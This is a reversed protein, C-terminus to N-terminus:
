KRSISKPSKKLKRYLTALSVGLAEAAKRTDGDFRDLVTRIHFREMEDLDLITDPKDMLTQPGELGVFHKPSLPGGRALLLARELINKLERVNGPWCYSKLLEIVEDSVELSPSELADLLYRVLGPLDEMRDRLCPIQIPFVNVRFYLDQRFNGEQIKLLLNQNTSCILRFESRRVAIEGLRRYHKEEIVKLFEAQVTLSMDGIEDLFFTGGDAVDILGPKDQTASTFAGRAHGFLESALLEGKLSSCNIEVFPASNNLGNDHIWRALVGKGAGTEGHLIVASENESALCALEVVKRIASSEGFYPEIKKSLRQSALQSRRLTGIELSKKLIVDLNELSVPKTLFNDAGLHIAEVVLPIEGHGTIVVIAIDPHKGRLEPIWELGKGDPLVLDLLVADFRRSMVAKRAEALCSVAQIGYGSKSFYKSFGFQIGPDDDVLLVNRKM